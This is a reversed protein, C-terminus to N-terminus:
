APGERFRLHRWVLSIILTHVREQEGRSTEVTCAKYVWLKINTAASLLVYSFGKSLEGSHPLFIQVPIHILTFM